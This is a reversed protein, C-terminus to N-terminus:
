ADMPSQNPLLSHGARPLLLGQAFERGTPPVRVDGLCVCLRTNVCQVEREERREISSASSSAERLVRGPPAPPPHPGSFM